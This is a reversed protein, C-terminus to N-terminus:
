HFYKCQVKQYYTDVEVFDLFHRNDFLLYNLFHFKLIILKKM